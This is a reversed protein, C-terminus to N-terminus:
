PTQKSKIRMYDVFYLIDIFALLAFIQHKFLSANSLGLVVFVANVILLYATPHQIFSKNLKLKKYFLFPSFYIIVIFVFGTIIGYQSMFALLDNHSDMIHRDKSGYFQKNRNWKGVGIGFIPSNSIMNLSTQFHNLRLILSANFDNEELQIMEILNNSKIDIKEIRFNRIDYREKLNLNNLTISIIIITLISSLTIILNRGKFKLYLFRFLEIALYAVTIIIASRTSNYFLSIFLLASFFIHKKSILKKRFILFTYFVFISAILCAFTNKKYTGSLLIRGGKYIFSYISSELLLFLISIGVAHFISTKTELLRSSSILLFFLILYRLQFTHSVVLGIEHSNKGNVVNVLISVSIIVLILAFITLDRKTIPVLYEQKCYRVLGILLFLDIHTVFPFYIQDFDIESSILIGPILNDVSAPIAIINFILFFSYWKIGKLGFYISALFLLLSVLEVLGINKPLIFYYNDYGVCFTTLIGLYILCISVFLARVFVKNYFTNSM